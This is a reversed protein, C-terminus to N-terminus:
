FLIDLSLPKYFGGILLKIANMIPRDNLRGGLGDVESSTRRSSGSQSRVDIGIRQLHFQSRRDDANGGNMQQLTEDARQGQIFFGQEPLDRNVHGEHKEGDANGQDVSQHGM